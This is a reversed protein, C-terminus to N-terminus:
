YRRTKLISSAEYCRRAALIKFHKWYKEFFKLGEDVYHKLFICAESPINTGLAVTKM